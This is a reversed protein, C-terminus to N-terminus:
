EPVHKFPIKPYIFLSVAAYKKIEQMAPCYVFWSILPDTFFNVFANIKTFNLNQISNLFQEKVAANTVFFFKDRTFWQIQHNILFNIQYDETHKIDGKLANVNQRNTRM